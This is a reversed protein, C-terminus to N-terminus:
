NVPLILFFYFIYIFTVKDSAYVVDCLGLLTVPIGVAPGNVAAVLIKPFDIFAGVFESFYFIM